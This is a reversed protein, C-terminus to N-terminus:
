CYFDGCFIRATTGIHLRPKMYGRWFKKNVLIGTILSGLTPICM